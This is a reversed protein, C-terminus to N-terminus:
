KQVAGTDINFTSGDPLLFISGDEALGCERADYLAWRLNELNPNAADITDCDGEPYQRVLLTGDPLTMLGDDALLPIPNEM